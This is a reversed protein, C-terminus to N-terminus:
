PEDDAGKRSDIEDLLRDGAKEDIGLKPWQSRECIRYNAFAELCQFCAEFQTRWSYAASIGHRGFMAGPEDEFNWPTAVMRWGNDPHDLPVSYDPMLPTANLTKEFNMPYGCLMRNPKWKPRSKFIRRAENPDEVGHLLRGLDPDVIWIHTRWVRHSSHRAPGSTFQLWLAMTGPPRKYEEGVRAQQRQAAIRAATDQPDLLAHRIADNAQVM